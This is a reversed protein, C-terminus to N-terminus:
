NSLIAVLDDKLLDLMLARLIERKMPDAFAAALSLMLGDSLPWPPANEGSRHKSLYRLEPAVEVIRHWKTFRSSYDFGAVPQWPNCGDSRYRRKM